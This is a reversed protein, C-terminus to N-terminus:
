SVAPNNLAHYLFKAYSEKRTIYFERCRKGVFKSKELAISKESFGDMKDEAYKVEYNVRGDSLESNTETGQWMDFNPTPRRPNALLSPDIKTFILDSDLEHELHGRVQFGEVSLHTNDTQPAQFHFM